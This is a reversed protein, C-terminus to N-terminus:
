SEEQADCPGCMQNFGECVNHGWTSPDGSIGGAYGKCFYLVHEGSGGRILAILQPKKWKKM